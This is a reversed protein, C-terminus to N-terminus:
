YRFRHVRLLVLGEETDTSRMWDSSRFWLSHDAGGSFLSNALSGAWGTSQPKTRREQPMPGNWVDIRLNRKEPPGHNKCMTLSNKAQLHGYEIFVEWGLVEQLQTHCPALYSGIPYLCIIMPLNWPDGTLELQWQGQNIVSTGQVMSPSLGSCKFLDFSSSFM